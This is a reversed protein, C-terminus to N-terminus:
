LRALVDLLHRQDTMGKDMCASAGVAMGREQDDQTLVGTLIVVPLHRWQASRRIKETLGFGGMGPMNADTIVVDVTERELVALAEEGSAAELVEYGAKSLLLTQLILEEPSDDVILIRGTRASNKPRADLVSRVKNLLTTASCPKPLFEHGAELVGHRIVTDDAYGSMFIVPTSPRVATFRKALQVGDMAPMVVDTLLLDINGQFRGAIELARKGDAAPLVQFGQAELISRVVNRIAPEDDALLITENGEKGSVSPAPATATLPEDVCPLYINFTTGRGVESSIRLHGGNQKVIGDVTPLGLGTGEGERKTTFFPELINALTAEDIGHGTDSVTLSVYRGPQVQTHSQTEVEVSEAGGTTISLEGGDPMADIANSVLNMLIQHIQSTDMRVHGIGNAPVITLKVSDPLLSRLMKEIKLIEANLDIVKHQLAQKRSFTLLQSTLAASRQAADQIERVFHLLTPRGVLSDALLSCFGKIVFLQNNFDHAIGGAIRGVLEVKQSHRLQEELRLRETVDEQIAVFRSIRGENNRVPTITQRVTYLTGDKRQDITEGKWVRGATIADWMDNYFATDHRGSRILDGARRGVTEAFSHGSNSCFAHNAWLIVGNLDTILIANDASELASSHLRLQEEAEKIPTIDSRITVYQRPKLDKDLFPVITTDGWTLTGSRTMNALEGKWVRGATITDQLGQLYDQTHHGSRFIAYHKGILEARPYQSLACFKDNAYTIKGSADTILVAAHEDLASKQEEIEHVAADTHIFAAQLARALTGIEDKATVMKWTAADREHRKDILEVIGSIPDIVLRDLLRYTLILLLALASLFATSLLVTWNWLEALPGRLDLHILVAGDTLSGAFPGPRSSLFPSTIELQSTESDLRNSGQRTRIATTYAEGLVSEPLMSLPKGLWAGRTAAMISPPDGAAIVILEVEDEAGLASVVRQLEGRGSISEAAYNLSNALLEARLRIRDLVLERSVARIGWVGSISLVAGVFLLPLLLKTRLSHTITTFAGSM